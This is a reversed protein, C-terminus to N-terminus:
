RSGSAASMANGGGPNRNAKKSKMGIKQMQRRKLKFTIINKCSNWECIYTKPEYVSFTFEHASKVFVFHKM